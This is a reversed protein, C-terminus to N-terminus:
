TVIVLLVPPPDRESRLAAVRAAVQRRGVRVALIVIVVAAVGVPVFVLRRVHLLLLAM